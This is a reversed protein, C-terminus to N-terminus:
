GTPHSLVFEGCIYYLLKGTFQFQDFVVLGFRIKHDFSILDDIKGAKNMIIDFQLHGKQHIEGCNIGPLTKFDDIVDAGITELMTNEELCDYAKAVKSEEDNSESINIKDAIIFSINFILFIIFIKFMVEKKM